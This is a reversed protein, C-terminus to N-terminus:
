QVKSLERMGLKHQANVYQAGNQVLLENDDEEGLIEAIVITAAAKRKKTPHLSAMGTLM